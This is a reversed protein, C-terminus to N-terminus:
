PSSWLAKAQLSLTGSATSDVTVVRLAVLLGRDSQALFALGAAMPVRGETIEPGKSWATELDASTAVSTFDGTLKRLATIRAKDGLVLRVWPDGTSSALSDAARRPSYLAPSLEGSALAFVLDIDAAAASAGVATFARFADLDLYSGLTPSAQAGLSVTRTSVPDAASVKFPVSDAVSFRGAQASVHLYYDGPAAAGVLVRLGGDLLFNFADRGAAWPTHALSLGAPASALRAKDKGFAYTVSALPIGSSVFGSFALTDPPLSDPRIVAVTKSRYSFLRLTLPSPFVGRVSRSPDSSSIGASDHLVVTQVAYHSTLRRSHIEEGYLTDRYLTERTAMAKSGAPKGDVSDNRTLLYYGNATDVSARWSVTVVGSVSDYALALGEPPEPKPKGGGGSDSPFCGALLWAAAALACLPGPSKLNRM